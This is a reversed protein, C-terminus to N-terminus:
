LHGESHLSHALVLMLKLRCIPHWVTINELPTDNIMTTGDISGIFEEVEAATLTKHLFTRQAYGKGYSQLERTIAELIDMM